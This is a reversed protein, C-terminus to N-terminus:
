SKLNKIMYTVIDIVWDWHCEITNHIIPSIQIDDFQSAFKKIDSKVSPTVYLFSKVDFEQALECYHIIKRLDEERNGKNRAIYKIINGQIFNLGMDCIFEIPQYRYKKYHNGGVQRDTAKM